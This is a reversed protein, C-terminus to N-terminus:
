CAYTALGLAAILTANSATATMAPPVRLLNTPTVAQASLKLREAILADLGPLAGGGTLLLRSVGSGRASQVAYDLSVQLESIVGEAHSMM